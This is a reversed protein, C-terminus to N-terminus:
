VGPTDQMDGQTRKAENDGPTEKKDVSGDDDSDDDDDNEIDDELNDVNQGPAAVQLQATAQTAKILEAHQVEITPFETQIPNPRIRELSRLKNLVVAVRVQERPLDRSVYGALEDTLDLVQRRWQGLKLKPRQTTKPSVRGTRERRQIRDERQPALHIRLLIRLLGDLSKKYITGNWLETMNTTLQTMCELMTRSLGVAKTGPRDTKSNDRIAKEIGKWFPRDSIVQEPDMDDMDNASKSTGLFASYLAQIHDKSFVRLIEDNRGNDHADELRAQLQEPIPAVDVVLSESKYTPPFLTSIDFGAGKTSGPTSNHHAAGSAIAFVAKHMIVQLEDVVDAVTNQSENLLDEIRRKSDKDLNDNLVADLTVSCTRYETEKEDDTVFTDLHGSVNPDTEVDM